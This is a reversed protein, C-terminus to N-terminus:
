GLWREKEEERLRQIYVRMREGKFREDRAKVEEVRIKKNNTAQDQYFKHSEWLCEYFHNRFPEETINKTALDSKSIKLVLQWMAEYAETSKRGKEAPDNTNNVEVFLNWINAM